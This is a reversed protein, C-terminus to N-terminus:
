PSTDPERMWGNVIAYRVIDARGQFGLKHMANSKHVEVTKVSIDLREAIEKNSHGAAMLRLVEVERDTVRPTTSRHRTSRTEFDLPLAPDIYKGGRAASRIAHLLETSASQKLVYGLAGLDMLQNVFALDDHRTLAIIATQPCESKLIRAAALGGLGPMTLDLVMVDPRLSVAREIATHGDQAEGVVTMDPEADILLRVGERVTAHDEALLVRIM